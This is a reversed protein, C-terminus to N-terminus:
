DPMGNDTISLPASPNAQTTDVLKQIFKRNDLLPSIARGHHLRSIVRAFLETVDAQIFWEKELLEKGQYVANTGIIRYFIGEKYAQDFNEIAGGNFFPLSVMVIVKKAGRNMLERMAIIMTGGTAIMDDAMLVIKGKVDGLLNISKINTNKASTSVQSYDREKYLMALPRHLAQAYFKNRNVAGTDPSVVVIDPDSFDILRRLAILTQYSGHVNELRCTSFANEIERSHIDLTIIRNVGLEEAFRAFMAATLAEISAKKHQRAYPYTPLVLTISAAGANTLANVTTFLFMLHDNVSIVQPEDLGAVKIPATNSVDHIVYVNLGRVPDIIEAKEEGNSFRTYKVNISFDPCHFSTPLKGTPIKKSDLDDLLTVTKLLEDGTIGHRKTLAESVKEYRDIYLRRLHKVVKGTFYESGPGAIVGLKHPKLISMQTCFVGFSVIHEVINVPLFLNYNHTKM